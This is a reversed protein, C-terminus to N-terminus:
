NWPILSMILNRLSEASYSEQGDLERSDNFVTSEAMKCFAYAVIGAFVWNGRTKIDALVKFKDDGCLESDCENISVWCNDSEREGEVMVFGDQLLNLDGKSYHMWVNPLLMEFESFASNILFKVEELDLPIKELPVFMSNAM